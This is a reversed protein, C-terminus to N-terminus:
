QQPSHGSEPGGIPQLHTFSRDCLPDMVGACARMWPLQGAPDRNWAKVGTVLAVPSGSPSAGAVGDGGLVLHPRQRAEYTIASGGRLEVTENFPQVASTTWVVGDRSFAHGGQDGPAPSSAGESHPWHCHFLVHYRGRPDLWAFPDTCGGEAQTEISPAYWANQGRAICM